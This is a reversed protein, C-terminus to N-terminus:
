QQEELAKTERYVASKIEERRKTSPKTFYRRERIEDRLKTNRHKKKYRRLARDISEGDKVKIM